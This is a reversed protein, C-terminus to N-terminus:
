KLTYTIPVMFWVPVKKGKLLGPTFKPLMKVVRISEADITPSIGNLISVDSVSGDEKVMFRIIVKGQIAHDKDVKPYRVSDAIFKLLAMDGGPFEPMVDVKQYAGDKMIAPVTDKRDTTAKQASANSSFLTMVLLTLSIFWLLRTAASKFYTKVTKM